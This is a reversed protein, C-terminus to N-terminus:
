ASRKDVVRLFLEEVREVVASIMFQQARKAGSEGLRRRTGPDALLDRLADALATPDAPPVLLGTENHSV